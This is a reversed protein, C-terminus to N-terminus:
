ANSVPQGLRELADRGLEQIDPDGHGLARNALRVALDHDLQEYLQLFMWYDDAAENALIAAVLPEIRALAWDRPLSAIVEWATHFYSHACRALDVWAPLLDMKEAVSLRPVLALAAARDAPRRIAAQLAAVRDVDPAFFDLQAQGWARHADAVQRWLDATPNNSSATM